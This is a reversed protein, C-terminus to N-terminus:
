FLPEMEVVKREGRFVSDFKELFGKHGILVTELEDAFFIVAEWEIREGTEPDVLIFTVPDPASYIKGDGGATRVDM